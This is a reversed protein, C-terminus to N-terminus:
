ETATASILRPIDPQQRLNNLHIFTRAGAIGDARLGRSRQFSEVLSELGADYLQSEAAIATMGTARQLQERLWQVDANRNGPRLVMHGKPPTRWLLRYEGYWHSKLEDIPLELPQDDIRINVQEGQVSELLIPVRQGESAALVLIAPRDYSRLVTWSGAGQLCRLGVAAAQACAQEDSVAVSQFGWLRYLGSWARRATDPGAQALLRELEGEGPMPEPVPAAIEPLEPLQEAEPAVSENMMQMDPSATDDGSSTLMLPQRAIVPWWPESAFYNAVLLAVVAATLATLAWQYIGGGRQEVGEEPLVERAAKRVIQPEIRRKGEVFAGLMARDCLVNILRPVGQSFNHIQDIARESFLAETAGCIELRHSIYAAIEDRRIPELHYRATIRQSLQRLEQRALLVRLEPQGVLIVQLLKERTTELNTLLRVQELADSGLNQAEDIILVTRRGRSHAELLYENLVDTLSKISTTQADYQIRLEDCVSALLELATVRPNLILAVDVEQPLQELLCRSMTTKGTGVEGTLQVFGGGEGVGYLLHALAERHQRSMYLFRPDPAISFPRETLGFHKEYM